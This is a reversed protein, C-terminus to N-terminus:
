MINASQLTLQRQLSDNSIGMDLKNNLTILEKSRKKNYLHYSTGIALPTIVSAVQQLLHQSVMLAKERTTRDVMTRSTGNVTHSQVKDSM